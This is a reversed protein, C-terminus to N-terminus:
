SDEDFEAESGFLESAGVTVVRVGIKPGSSVIAQKGEITAITVRHRAFVLPALRKYVWTAGDVDYMLASYPIVTRRRGDVVRGTVPATEIGLRNAAEATLTVRNIGTTGIPDVRAPPTEHDGSASARSNDAVGEYIGFAALGIVILAILWVARRGKLAASKAVVDM